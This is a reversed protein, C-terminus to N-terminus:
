DAPASVAVNTIRAAKAADLASVLAQASSDHDPQVVVSRDPNLASLGALNAKLAAGDIRHNDIWYEDEADILVLIVDPQDEVIGNTETLNADLGTERVFSATVIFFILMIFVVDLMPTLNIDAHSAHQSTMSFRSMAVDGQRGQQPGCYRTTCPIHLTQIVSASSRLLAGHEHDSGNLVRVEVLALRHDVIQDLRMRGLLMRTRAVPQAIGIEARLVHTM